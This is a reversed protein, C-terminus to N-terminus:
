NLHMTDRNKKKKKSVGQIFLGPYHTFLCVVFFGETVTQNENGLM